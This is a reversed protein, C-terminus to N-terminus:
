KIKLGEPVDGDVTVVKGKVTFPLNKNKINLTAIIEEGQKKTELTYKRFDEISIQEDTIEFDPIDVKDGDVADDPPKLLYTRNNYETALLMGNSVVGRIKAPKLNRIIIIKRGILEDERYSDRIGSVITREEGGIQLKLIYLKDADPHPMVEKVKAVVFNLPLKEKSSIKEFLKEPKIIVKMVPLQPDKNLYVPSNFGMWQLVKESSKPLFIQGNSALIYSIFGLTYLAGNCDANKSKCPEWPKRNTIYVNAYRALEMWERFADRIRVKEMNEIIALNKSRAFKIAELDLDNFSCEDFSVPGNKFLMILARNIFNGYKDILETNVKNEFEELSFDSDHGEPLNYYIGFRIYEPDYRDLLEPMFFGVNSSKSFKSGQLNLYENAAIFYPLQYEGHALLMAPWIISHFPINDKGMFYYQKIQPDSWWKKAEELSNLTERTGTLYGILAEFWVYVKKNNYEPFPVEVGWDLDRTIPRDKLGSEIFNRSFYLVNERWHINGNIYAEMKEQLASLKFFLHKTEKFVPPNGCLVCLPNILESPELTSGCNECQDGRAKEYGCHPCKGVVYRDPLFMNDHECFPQVMQGEYIYGNDMLKRLFKEVTDKHINSSTEIYTSFEIYMRRFIEKNIEHYQKAIEQPTKNEKMARVTIPTGHEDSGSVSIVEKGMLINFRRFADYPVYAGAMHGLHLPGNAYPLASFILVREKM